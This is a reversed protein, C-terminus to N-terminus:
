DAGHGLLVRDIGSVNKTDFPADPVLLAVGLWISIALGALAFIVALVGGM